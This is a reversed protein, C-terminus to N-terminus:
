VFGAAFFLVPVINPNFLFFKSSSPNDCLNNRVVHFIVLILCAKALFM